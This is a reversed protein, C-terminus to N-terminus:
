AYEGKLLDIGCEEILIENVMEDNLYDRVYSDIYYNIHSYFEEVKASSFDFIEKLVIGSIMAYVLTASDLIKIIEIVNCKYKESNALIMKERQSITKIWAHAHINKTECYRLMQSSDIKGKEYEDFINQINDWYRIIRKKGFGYRDRLAMYGMFQLHKFLEKMMQEQQRYQKVGGRQFSKIEEKTYFTQKKKKRNLVSSM